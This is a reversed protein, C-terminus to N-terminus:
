PRNWVKVAIKMQGPGSIQTVELHGVRRGATGFCAKTNVQVSLSRQGPNRNLLDVCQEREPLGEGDWAVFETGTIENQACGLQCVLGIDGAPQRTAPSTDLTYGTVFQQGDLTLTGEWFVKPKPPPSKTTTTTTTEVVPPNTSSTTTTGPATSASTSPGPAPRDERLLSSMGVGVGAGALVLAAAGIALGKRRRAPVYRAVEDVIKRVDKAAYKLPLYRGQITPLASIDQPLEVLDEPRAGETFVPIVRVGCAFATALERRIWDNEDDIRRKGEADVSLWQPGIVALLVKSRRVGELLELVYNEGPQISEEDFFVQKRWFPRNLEKYLLRAAYNSDAGRYNIFVDAM